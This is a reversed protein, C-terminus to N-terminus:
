REARTGIVLLGDARDAGMLYCLVRRALLRLRLGASVKPPLLEVRWAEVDLGQSWAWTVLDMLPYLHVHTEDRAFPSLICGPNPTSLVLVGGPKVMGALRDRLALGAELPLHEIVELCLVADFPGRIASPDRYTTPHEVSVDFTEYKGTFGAAIFKRRLSQDGSGYDLLRGAARAREWIVREVENLGDSRQWSICPAAVSYAQDRM